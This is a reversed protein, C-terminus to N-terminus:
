YNSVHMDKSLGPSPILCWSLLIEHLIANLQVLSDQYCDASFQLIISSDTSDNYVRILILFFIFINYEEIRQQSLIENSAKQHKQKICFTLESSIIKLDRPIVDNQFLVSQSPQMTGTAALRRGIYRLPCLHHGTSSQYFRSKKAKM